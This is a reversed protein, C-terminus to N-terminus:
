EGALLESFIHIRHNFNTMVSLLKLRFKELTQVDSMGDELLKNKYSNIVEELASNNFGSLDIYLLEFGKEKDLINQNTTILFPGDKDFFTSDIKEKLIDLVKNSIEYNYQEIQLKKNVGKDGFLIFKNEYIKNEPVLDDEHNNSLSVEKLAQIIKLVNIYRKLNEDNKGYGILNRPFLVYTRTNKLKNLSEISNILTFSHLKLKINKDVKKSKKNSKYIKSYSAKGFFSSDRTVSYKSNHEKTKNIARLKEKNESIEREIERKEIVLLSMKKELIIIKKEEEEERNKKRLVAKSYQKYNLAKKKNLIKKIKELIRISKNIDDFVGFSENSKVINLIKITDQIDFISLVIKQGYIKKTYKKLKNKQNEKFEKILKSINKKPKKLDKAKKKNKIKETYKKLENKQNEKFKKILKSINKKPKKQNDNNITKVIEICRELIKKRQKKIKKLFIIKDEIERKKIWSKGKLEENFIKIVEDITSM